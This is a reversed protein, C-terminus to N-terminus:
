TGHQQDGEESKSKEIHSGIPLLQWKGAFPAYEQIAGDSFRVIIKKHILSQSIIISAGDRDTIKKGQPFIPYDEITILSEHFSDRIYQEVLTM